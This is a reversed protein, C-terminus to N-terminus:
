PVAEKVRLRQNIAIERLEQSEGSPWRIQIRDILTEDGLGFHLARENASAYGGGGSVERTLTLDGAELTVRAGIADRNSTTGELDLVFWAGLSARNEIIRLSGRRGPGYDVIVFDRDGDGDIDGEAAGRSSVTSTPFYGATAETFTGGHNLYLYNPEDFGIPMRLFNVRGNTVLLDLWGNHDVDVFIPSWSVLSWQELDVDCYKVCFEALAQVWRDTSESDFDPWEAPNGPYDILGSPAGRTAGEDVACFGWENGCAESDPGDVILLVNRTINCAYADLDGDNDIDGFAAGMGLIEQNFGTAESVDEFLWNDENETDPGQNLLLQNGGYLFGFDNVVYLDPRGDENLDSWAVGLSTAAMENGPSPLVPQFYSGRNWLLLNRRNQYGTEYLDILGDSDFDAFAVSARDPVSGLGWEDTLEFHGEGDNLLLDSGFNGAAYIDPDGDNDVDAYGVARTDRAAWVGSGATGDYFTGDGCNLALSLHGERGTYVIDLADDANVDVLAVGGFVTPIETLLLVGTYATIDVFRPNDPDTPLAVYGRDFYPCPEAELDPEDGLDLVTSLDPEADLDTSTDEARDPTVDVLDPPIDPFHPDTEDLPESADGDRGTTDALDTDVLSDATEPDSAV